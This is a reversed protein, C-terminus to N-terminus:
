DGGLLRTNKITLNIETNTPDNYKWNIESDETMITIQNQIVNINHQLLDRVDRLLKVSPAHINDITNNVGLSTIYNPPRATIIDKYYVRISDEYKEVRDVVTETVLTDMSVANKMIEEVYDKLVKGSIAENDYDPDNLLGMNKIINETDYKGDIQNQLDDDTSAREDREEVIRELIDNIDNINPIESFDVGGTDGIQVFGGEEDEQASDAYAYLKDGVVFMYNHYKPDAFDLESAELEELTNFSDEYLKMTYRNELDVIRKYMDATLIGARNETAGRLVADEDYPNQDLINDDTSLNQKTLSLVIQDENSIYFERNYIHYNGNEYIYYKETITDYYIAGITPKIKRYSINDIIYCSKIVAPVLNGDKYVYYTGTDDSIYLTDKEQFETVKNECVIQPSFFHINDHITPMVYENNFYYYQNVTGNDDEADYFENNSPTKVNSYLVGIEYAGDLSEYQHFAGDYYRYFININNTEVHYITNATGDTRTLYFMGDVLYGRTIPKSNVEAGRMQAHYYLINGDPELVYYPIHYGDEISYFYYSNTIYDYYATSVNGPKENVYGASITQYFENNFYYGSIVTKTRDDNIPNDDDEYQKFLVMKTEDSDYPIIHHYKSSAQIFTESETDYLYYGTIDDTEAKSAYDFYVYEEGKTAPNSYFSNNKLYGKIYLYQDYENDNRHLIAIKNPIDQKNAYLVNNHYYYQADRSVEQYQPDLYIYYKDTENDHYIDYQVPTVKNIYFNNVSRYGHIKNDDLFPMYSDDDKYKDIAPDEQLDHYVDIETEQDHLEYFGLYTTVDNVTESKMYGYILREDDLLSDNVEHLGIVRWLDPEESIRKQGNYITM